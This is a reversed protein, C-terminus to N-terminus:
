RSAYNFGRLLFSVGCDLITNKNQHDLVILYSFAIKHRQGILLEKLVKLLGKIMPKLVSEINEPGYTFAYYIAAGAILAAIPALLIGGIMALGDEELM